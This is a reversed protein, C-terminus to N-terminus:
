KGGMGRRIARYISVGSAIGAAGIGAYVLVMQWETLMPFTWWPLSNRTNSAFAEYRSNMVSNAFAFEAEKAVYVIGALIAIGAFTWFATKVKNFPSVAVLFAACGLIGFASFIIVSLAV